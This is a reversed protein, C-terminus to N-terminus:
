WVIEEAYFVPGDKCVRKHNVQSHTDKKASRCVCALCAGIGCAMREELSLQAPVGWERALTQIGKLMPTPGCAYLMEATVGAARIADLVTGRTGVSGDGTATLVDATKSFEESLFTRSDRYGLVATVHKGEKTLQKALGLMPPIGIGGGIVLAKKCDSAFFGNGLPGMIEVTDGAKKQSLQRTGEGAVRFVMRLEGTERRCDCLSIPRPLLRGADELYFSLFQGPRAAAALEPECVVMDFINETLARMATIPVKTMKPMEAEGNQLFVQRYESGITAYEM